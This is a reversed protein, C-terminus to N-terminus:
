RAAALPRLALTRPPTPPSLPPTPATHRACSATPPPPRPPRPQRPPPPPSPSCCTLEAPDRCCRPPSPSPRVVDWKSQIGDCCACTCGLSYALSLVLPPCLEFFGDASSDRQASVGAGHQDTWARGARQAAQEAARQGEQDERSGGRPRRATARRRRKQGERARWLPSPPSQAPAPHVFTAHFPTPDISAMYCRHEGQREVPPLRARPLPLARRPGGRSEGGGRAEGRELKVEQARESMCVEYWCPSASSTTESKSGSSRACFGERVRRAREVELDVQELTLSSQM